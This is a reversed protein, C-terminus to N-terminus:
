RSLLRVPLRQYRRVQLSKVWIPRQSPELAIRSTRELLARLVIQGELRALPAGVCTHIGKGFTMHNRPRELDLRDAKAFVNQDRNGASWFMLVTARAPIAVGGLSTDRPVSRLHFRFPSELRLVEELFAPILEPQARLIQQLDQDEALFRVASGLLSTTSEGGAALLIHLIARGEMERITGDSVSRKVSSLIDAGNTPAANLQGGIWRQILYSRLMCMTLQFLNLTAGVIATSDFAAQLLKENDSEKFGLLKSVITIPVLNGVMSMFDGSGVRLLRGVCEHAVGEIEPSMALMRKAVLEPIV